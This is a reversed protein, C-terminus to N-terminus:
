LGVAVLGALDAQAVAEVTRLSQLKGARGLVGALRNRVKRAKILVLDNHVREVSLARHLLHFLVVGENENDVDLGVLSLDLTGELSEVVNVGDFDVCEDPIDVQCGSCAPVTSVLELGSPELFAYARRVGSTSARSM